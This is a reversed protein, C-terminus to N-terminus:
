KQQIAELYAILAEIQGEARRDKDAARGLNGGLMEGWVPMERAGHAKELIRGDIIKRLEAADLGGPKRQAITTLDVPRAKLSEAVVGDGKGALGHCSSCYKGFLEKGRQAQRSLTEEATVRPALALLALAILGPILAKM